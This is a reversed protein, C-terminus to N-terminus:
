ALPNWDQCKNPSRAAEREIVNSEKRSDNGYNVAIMPTGFNKRQNLSRYGAIDCSIASFRM